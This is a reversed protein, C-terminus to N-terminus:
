SAWAVGVCRWTTGILRMTFSNGAGLTSPAGVVTTGDGSVTLATIESDAFFSVEARLATCSDPLEITHAAITGPHEFVHVSEGSDIETTGGNSPTSVVTSGENVDASLVFPDLATGSGLLTLAVSSTSDVTLLASIDLDSIGIIYPDQSTGTGTVSVGGDGQV